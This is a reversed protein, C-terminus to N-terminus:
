HPFIHLSIVKSFYFSSERSMKEFAIGPICYMKNSFSSKESFKLKLKGKKLEKRGISFLIIFINSSKM